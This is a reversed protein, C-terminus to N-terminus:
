SESRNQLFMNKAETFDEMTDIDIAQQTPVEYFLPNKGVRCGTNFVTDKTAAYLGTTEKLMKADQSRPLGDPVEPSYNVAEGNIWFWGTEETVLLVSDHKDISDILASVSDKIIKGKLNVATVYVQVYIDYQDHKVAFQNILHNGNANDSAYWSARKHFKFRDNYRDKIREFVEEKESDIYIDWEEPLNKHIEDLLWFSLSKGALERFNKNPVRTSPKGKIPVQVAVKM